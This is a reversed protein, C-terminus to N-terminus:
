AEAARPAPDSGGHRLGLRMSHLARLRGAAGAPDVEIIGRVFRHSEWGALALLQDRERDRVASAWDGHFRQSDLEVVLRADPWAFDVVLPRPEGPVAIPHNQLPRPV